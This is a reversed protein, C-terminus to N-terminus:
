ELKKSLIYPQNDIWRIVPEGVHTRKWIFWAYVMMGTRYKGDNRLPDGLLPYRCFVRVVSLPFITDSWVKDLREKGHLYSLRLLLAFSYEIITKAHQIFELALSFPPNTILQPYQDQDQLFDKELDYNVVTFGNSSLVKVIANDGCAPELIVQEKNFTECDLLQQTISFPTEYFDSEKRQGINNASFNKGIM